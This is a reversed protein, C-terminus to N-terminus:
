QPADNREEKRRMYNLRFVAAALLSKSVAILGFVVVQVWFYILIEDPQWFYFLVTTDLALAFSAASFMLLRGLTESWWPSFAYILPFATGAIAAAFLFWKLIQTLTEIDRTM